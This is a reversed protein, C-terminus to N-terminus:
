CEEEEEKEYRFDNLWFEEEMKAPIKQIVTKNSGWNQPEFLMVVDTSSMAHHVFCGFVDCDYTLKSNNM